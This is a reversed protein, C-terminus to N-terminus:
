NKNPVFTNKKYEIFSNNLPKLDETFSDLQYLYGNQDLSLELFVKRGDINYAFGEILVQGFLRDDKPSMFEFSGMGGDNLNKVFTTSLKDIIKSDIELFSFIDQLLVVESETLLRQM